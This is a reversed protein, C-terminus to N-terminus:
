QFTLTTDVSISDYRWFRFTYSGASPVEITVPAEISSLVQICPDNNRPRTFVTVAIFQGSISHDSRAFEWCPTPIMCVINFTVTRGQITVRCIFEASSPLPAPLQEGMDICGSICVVISIVIIFNRMDGGFRLVTATRRFAAELTEVDCRPSTPSLFAWM